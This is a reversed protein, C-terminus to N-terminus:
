LNKYTIDSRRDIAFIKIEKNHDFYFLIRLKGKRVRYINESGLLKKIDLNKGGSASGGKASFSGTQLQTIINKIIKREIDNFRKLAKKLTGM